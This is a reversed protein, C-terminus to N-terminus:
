PTNIARIRELVPPHSYNLFVYLPHPTLNTLNRVSLKKLSESMANPNGTTKAAFRDAEYENKRSFYQLFLGVFLDIPAYLMGFFILGAHVSKYEMYFADFLEQRSIFLSLLFFVIGTQLVGIAMMKLIHKKKYHGMEHALIAVLEEVSHQEILTDFLVIRRNKGFGTFFANAKSSRKSGDMVFVNKLPFQISEAYAMVADKLEGEAMPEFKNFLPMIWMPAIYQIALIFVTVVIWCYWWANSGAYIFFGLVGALLPVGILMALVFGKVRDIIFTVWGTKNFGFREEIVFTSYISFPLSLLVKFFILIGIYMLGTLVPGRGWSRTWNDLYPFWKGFWFLLTISLSVVSVIWSFGTNVRLYEQSQRYQDEDCMGSFAKPLDNGAMRLNLFDALGNTMVEVIMAFLIIVAIYNM